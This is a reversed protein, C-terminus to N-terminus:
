RWAAPRILTEALMIVGTLVIFAAFGCQLRPGSVRGALLRGLGMGVAGGLAFPLLLPWPLERHLLASATGAVGIATIILLSTAVARHIGMRTVGMLAPVILFGGGVGFLGSLVGTGFGAAMLVAACPADFRLAGEPTLRCIPRTGDGRPDARVAYSDEPSRRARQWMLGGVALALLAFGAVILREDLRHALQLGLPAGTAGGIAFVLAPLLAPLRAQLAQVAGVLSAIAVAALSVPVAQSPPVGLAYILLPVALMSGGGGTLGLAIGVFAGALVIAPLESM